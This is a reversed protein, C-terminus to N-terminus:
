VKSSSSGGRGMDLGQQHWQGQQHWVGQHQWVGQQHWRQQHGLWQQQWVGRATAGQVQVYEVRRISGQEYGVKRIGGGKSIGGGRVAAAAPAMGGIIGGKSGVGWGREMCLVQQHRVKSMDLRASAM